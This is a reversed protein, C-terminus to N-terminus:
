ETESRPCDIYLKDPRVASPGVEARSKSNLSKEKFISHIINLDTKVAKWTFASSRCLLSLGKLLFGAQLHTPKEIFGLEELDAMENRITASSFTIDEKQFANKIRGASSFSHFRQRYGALNVASSKNVDM